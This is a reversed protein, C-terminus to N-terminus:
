DEQEKTEEQEVSVGDQNSQEGDPYLFAIIDDRYIDADKPSFRETYLKFDNGLTYLIGDKLVNNVAAKGLFVIHEALNEPKISFGKCENLYRRSDLLKEVEKMFAGWVKPADGTETALYMRICKLKTENDKNESLQADFKKRAKSLVRWLALTTHLKLSNGNRKPPKGGAIVVPSAIMVENNESNKVTESIKMTESNKM